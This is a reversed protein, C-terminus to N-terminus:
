SAAAPRYIRHQAPQAISSVTDFTYGKARLQEIIEPLAELTTTNKSVDHMLIVPENFGTATGMINELIQEKTRLTPAADGSSVNWDHHVCRREGMRYLIENLDDRNVYGNSSGGPFRFQTTKQGTISMIWQNTKEFDEIFTDASQYIQKYNHTYSHVAIEHGEDFARKTYAMLEESDTHVVFFTAKVNYEKLVDLIQPTMSSPGDDFTLYAVKARKEPSTPQETRVSATSATKSVVTDTAETKEAKASITTANQSLATQESFISNESSSSLSAPTKKCGTLLILLLLIVTYCATLKKEKRQHTHRM